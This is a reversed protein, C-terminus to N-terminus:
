AASALVGALEGLLADFRGDTGLARPMGLVLELRDGFRTVVVFADGFLEAKGYMMYQEACGFVHGDAEFRSRYWQSFPSAETFFFTFRESM